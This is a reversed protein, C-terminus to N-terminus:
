PGCDDVETLSQSDPTSLELEAGAFCVDVPELIVQRPGAEVRGALLAEYGLGEAIRV